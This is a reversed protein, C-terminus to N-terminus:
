QTFYSLKSIFHFASSHLFTFVFFLVCNWMVKPELWLQNIIVAFSFLYFLYLSHTFLNNLRLEVRLISSIYRTWDDLVNWQCTHVFYQRDESKTNRQFDWVFFFCMFIALWDLSMLSIRFEHVYVILLHKNQQKM